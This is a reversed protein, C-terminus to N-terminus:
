DDDDDENDRWIEEIIDCVDDRASKTLQQMCESSVGDGFAVVEALHDGLDDWTRGIFHGGCFFAERMSACDVCTTFDESEDEIVQEDYDLKVGWSFEYQEGLAIERSCEVCKRETGAVRMEDGWDDFGDEVDIAVCSCSSM